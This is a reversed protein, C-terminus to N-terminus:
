VIQQVSFKLNSCSRIGYEKADSNIASATCADALEGFTITHIEIAESIVPEAVDPNDEYRQQHKEM